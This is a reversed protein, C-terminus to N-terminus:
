KKISANIKKYEIYNRIVLISCIVDTVYWAIILYIFSKESLKKGLFNWSPNTNYIDFGKLLALTTLCFLVLIALIVSYIRRYKKQTVFILFIVLLFIFYSM